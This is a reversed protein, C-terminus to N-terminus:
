HCICMRSIYMFDCYVLVLVGCLEIVCEELPPLNKVTLFRCTCLTKCREYGKVGGSVVLRM